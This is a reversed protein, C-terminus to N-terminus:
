LPLPRPSGCGPRSRSSQSNRRSSSDFVASSRKRCVIFSCSIESAARPAACSGRPPASRRRRARDDPRQLVADRHALQAEVVVPARLLVGLEDDISSSRMSPLIWASASIATLRCSGSKRLLWTSEAASLMRCVSFATLSSCCRVPGRRGARPAAPSGRFRDARPAAAHRRIVLRATGGFAARRPKGGHAACSASSYKEPVVAANTRCPLM